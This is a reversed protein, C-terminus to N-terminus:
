MLLDSILNLYIKKVFNSYLKSFLPNAKSARIPKCPNLQSDVVCHGSWSFLECQSVTLFFISSENTITFTLELLLEDM